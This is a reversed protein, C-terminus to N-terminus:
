IFEAYEEESMLGDLQSEDILKVKIFWVDLPSDNVTEPEDVITDNFDIITCDVPLFLDSVTKVAEITGFVEDQGLVQSEDVSIEVYVIDGLEGVAFESIGVKYMGDEDPGSIWEHDKSYKRM